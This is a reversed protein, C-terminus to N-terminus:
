AKLWRKAYGMTRRIAERAEEDFLANATEGRCKTNPFVGRLQLIYKQGPLGYDRAAM